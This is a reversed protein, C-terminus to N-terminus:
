YGIPWFIEDKMITQITNVLETLDNMLVASAPYQNRLWIYQEESTQIFLSGMRSKHQNEFEIVMSKETELTTTAVEPFEASLVARINQILLDM